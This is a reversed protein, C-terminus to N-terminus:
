LTLYPDPLNKICGRSIQDVIINRNIDHNYLLFSLLLYSLDEKFSVLTGINPKLAM